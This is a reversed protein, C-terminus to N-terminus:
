PTPRQVSQKKLLVGAKAKVKSNKGEKKPHLQDLHTIVIPVVTAQATKPSHPGIPALPLVTKQKNGKHKAVHQAANKITATKQPL